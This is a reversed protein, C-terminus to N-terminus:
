NQVVSINPLSVLVKSMPTLGETIEGFGFNTSLPYIGYASFEEVVHRGGITRSVRTFTEDNVDSDDVASDPCNVALETL